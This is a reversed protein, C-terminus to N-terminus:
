TSKGSSLETPNVFRLVETTVATGDIRRDKAVAFAKVFVMDGDGDGGVGKRVAVPGDYRASSETPESGDLTYHITVDGQHWGGSATYMSVLVVNVHKGGKPEIVVPKMVIPGTCKFALEPDLALDIIEREPGM